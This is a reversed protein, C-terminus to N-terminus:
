SGDLLGDVEESGEESGPVAGGAPDLVRGAQVGAHGVDPGHARPRVWDRCRSRSRASPRVSSSSSRM